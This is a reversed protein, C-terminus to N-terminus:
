TPSMTSSTSLRSSRSHAQPEVSEARTIAGRQRTVGRPRAGRAVRGGRPLAPAASTPMRASSGWAAALSALEAAAAGMLEAGRAVNAGAGTRESARRRHARDRPADRPRARRPHLADGRPRRPATAAARRVPESGLDFGIAAANRDAPEVYTIVWCLPGRRRPPAARGLDRLRGLRAVPVDRHRHEVTVVPSASSDEHPIGLSTVAELIRRAPYEAGARPTAPLLV